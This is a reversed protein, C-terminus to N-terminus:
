GGAAFSISYSGGPWRAELVYCDASPIFLYSPFNAYRNQPSGSLDGSGPVGPHVPDLIPTTTPDDGGFQFWLRDSNSLSHGSLTVKQSYGPQTLWLVKRYLGHPGTRGHLSDVIHLVDRRGEAIFGLAWAPSTGLAAGFADIIALPPALPCNTPPPGILSYSVPRSPSPSM